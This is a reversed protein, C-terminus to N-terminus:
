KEREFPVGHLWGGHGHRSPPLRGAGPDVGLVKAGANEVAVTMTVDSAM